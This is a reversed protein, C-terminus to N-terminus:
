EKVLWPKPEWGKFEWYDSPPNDMLSGDENRKKPIVLTYDPQYLWTRWVGSDFVEYFGKEISHRVTFVEKTDEIIATQEPNKGNCPLLTIKVHKSM